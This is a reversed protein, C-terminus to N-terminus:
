SKLIACDNISRDGARQRGAQCALLPVIEPGFFIQWGLSALYELVAEESLSETFKQSM